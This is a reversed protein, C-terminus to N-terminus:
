RITSVCNCQFGMRQPRADQHDRNLSFVAEALSDSALLRAAFAASPSSATCPEVMSGDAYRTLAGNAATEGTFDSMPAPALRGHNIMILSKPTTPYAGTGKALETRWAVRKLM